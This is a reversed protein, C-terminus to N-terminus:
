AAVASKIARLGDVLARQGADDLTAFAPAMIKNTTAEIAKMEARDDDTVTPQADNSYGFMEWADPRKIIHAVKPDMGHTVIAALHASGRAERLCATLHLAAGPTDNPVPEAALGAYLALGAPDIADNITSAAACFADLGDVGGLTQRGLDANCTNYLRAADRPPMKEKATTWLKEVIPPNFYGFASAVVNAEVDGLVGGRGLFYFRFGDLEHEKGVQLTAPKFYFASGIDAILPAAEAMLENPTM